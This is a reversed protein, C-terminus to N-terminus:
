RSCLECGVSSSSVSDFFIRNTSSQMRHKPGSWYIKAYVCCWCAILIGAGPGDEVPGVYRTRRTEFDESNDRGADRKFVLQRLSDRWHRGHVWLADGTSPRPPPSSVYSPEFVGTSGRGRFPTEPSLLTQSQKHVEEGIERFSGKPPGGQPPPAAKQPPIRPTTLAGGGRIPSVHGAVHVEVTHKQNNHALPTMVHQPRYIAPSLCWM